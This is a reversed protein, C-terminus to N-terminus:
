LVVPLFPRHSVIATCCDQFLKTPIFFYFGLALCFEIELQNLEVLTLGGAPAFTGNYCVANDDLYKAAITIAVVLLRHVTYSDIALRRPYRAVLRAIYIAASIMCESSILPVHGCVMDNGLSTTATAYMSVIRWLDSTLWRYDHDGINETTSQVLHHLYNRVTHRTKVRAHFPTQQQDKEKQEVTGDDNVTYLSDNVTCLAELESALSDIVLFLGPVRWGNHRLTARTDATTM